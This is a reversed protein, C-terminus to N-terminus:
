GGGRPAGDRRNLSDKAGVDRRTDVLNRIESRRQTQFGQLQEIAV